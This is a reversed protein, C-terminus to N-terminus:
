NARMVGTVVFRVPVGDALNVCKAKQEKTPKRRCYVVVEGAGQGCSGLWFKIPNATLEKIHAQYIRDSAAEVLESDNQNAVDVIGNIEIIEEIKDVVDRINWSTEYYHDRISVAITHLMKLKEQVKEDNMM